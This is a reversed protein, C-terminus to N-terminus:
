TLKDIDGDKLSFFNNKISTNLTLCTLQLEDRITFNDNKDFIKKEEYKKMIEETFKNIENIKSVFEITTSASTTYLWINVSSIYDTVTIIDEETFKSVP